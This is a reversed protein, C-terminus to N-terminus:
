FQYWKKDRYKQMLQHAHQSYSEAENRMRASAEELEGLHQGREIAAQFSSQVNTLM